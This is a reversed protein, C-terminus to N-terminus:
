AAPDAPTKSGTAGDTGSPVAVLGATSPAPEDIEPSHRQLWQTVPAPLEAPRDGWDYLVMSGAAADHLARRRKGLVIPILGLCLIFSFPYVITRIAARWPSIPQEGPGVVRLGVLGKGVSRGTISLGIWYYLFAYSVYGVAWWGGHHNLDVQHSSFLGILFACVGVALSYSLAISGFDLLFAALRSIGGAPRGTVTGGTMSDVERPRRFIRNVASILALDVGALQRRVLDLMRAIVGRSANSVIEDIKAQKMVAPMDVSAIVADLDVQKIVADVDVRQIVADVDVRKILGGIDVGDVIANVDLRDALSNIDVRALLGEVDLRALLADLDVRELLSMLDVRTLLADLDVREMLAQIDVRQIVADVDVESVLHDV